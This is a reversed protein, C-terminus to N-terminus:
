DIGHRGRPERTAINMDVGRTGMRMGSSTWTMTSLDTYFMHEVSVSATGPASRPTDVLGTVHRAASTADSRTDLLEIAATPVVRDGADIGRRLGFLALDVHDLGEDAPLIIQEVQLMVVKAAQESLDTTDGTTMRRICPCDETSDLTWGSRRAASGEGESPRM